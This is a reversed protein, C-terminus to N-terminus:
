YAGSRDKTMPLTGGLTHQFIHWREAATTLHQTMPFAAYILLMVLLKFKQGIAGVMTM